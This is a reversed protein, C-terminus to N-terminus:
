SPDGKASNVPRRKMELIKELPCWKSFASQLLNAGVFASLWIWNHNVFHSLTIGTLALTGAVARIIQENKM